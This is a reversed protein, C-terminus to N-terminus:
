RRSATPEVQLLYEVLLQGREQDLGEIRLRYLGPVLGAISVSTGDDGLLSSGPRRLTRLVKGDRDVLQLRYEGFVPQGALSLAVDFRGEQPTPRVLNVMGARLLGNDPSEQGRLIFRPAVSVEIDRAAVTVPARERGTDREWLLSGAIAVLLAAAIMAFAPLHSRRPPASRAAQAMPESVPKSAPLRQALSGWAEQRLSEPGTDSGAAAAEFDRIERWLRTCRPCLSLHEQVAEHEAETLRGERYAILRRVGCHPGTDGPDDDAPRM